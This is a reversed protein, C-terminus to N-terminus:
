RGGGKNKVSMRDVVKEHYAEDKDLNPSRGARAGFRSEVVQLKLMQRLKAREDPCRRILEDLSAPADQPSPGADDLYGGNKLLKYAMRLDEPINADENLDLPKGKMPLDDFEGREMSERIRQEAIIAIAAIV